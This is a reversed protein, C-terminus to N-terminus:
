FLGTSSAGGPEAGATGSESMIREAFDAVEQDQASMLRQFRPSEAVLAARLDTVWRQEPEVQSRGRSRQFAVVRQRNTGIAFGLLIDLLEVTLERDAADLVELLFPLAPLAASGVQVHQHCLGCWLEHSADLAVKRDPGALRRLQDPVKEAPGYATGFDAWPIADLREGFAPRM